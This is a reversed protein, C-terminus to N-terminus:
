PELRQAAIRAWEGLLRLQMTWRHPDLGLDHRLHFELVPGVIAKQASWHKQAEALVDIRPVHPALHHALGRHELRIVLDCGDQALEVVRLAREREQDTSVLDPKRMEVAHVPGGIRRELLGREGLAIQQTVERLYRRE